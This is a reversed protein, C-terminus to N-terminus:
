NMWNKVFQYCVQILKDPNTGNYYLMQDRRDPYASEVMCVLRHAVFKTNVCFFDTKSGVANTNEKTLQDVNTWGMDALKDLLDNRGGIMLIRFNNLYDIMEAQSVSIESAFDENEVTEELFINRNKTKEEKLEQTMNEIIGSKVSLQYELEKIRKDRDELLKQYDSKEAEKSKLQKYDAAISTLRENESVLKKIQRETDSILRQSEAADVVTDVNFSRDLFGLLEFVSFYHIGTDDHGDRNYNATRQMGFAKRFVIENEYQQKPVGKIMKSGTAVSRMHGIVYYNGEYSCKSIHFRGLEFYKGIFDNGLCNKFCSLLNYSLCDNVEDYDMGHEFIHSGLIKTDGFVEYIAYMVILFAYISLGRCDSIYYKDDNVCYGMKKFVMGEKPYQQLNPFLSYLTNKHETDLVCSALAEHHAQKPSNPKLGDFLNLQNSGLREKDTMSIGLFFPLGTNYLGDVCDMLSSIFEKESLRSQLYLSQACECIWEYRYDVFRSTMNLPIYMPNKNDTLSDQSLENRVRKYDELDYYDWKILDLLDVPLEKDFSEKTISMATLESIGVCLFPIMDIKVDDEKIEECCFAPIYFGDKLVFTTIDAFPIRKGNIQLNDRVKYSLHPKKKWNELSQFGEKNKSNESDLACSALAEHHAQNPSNPKFLSASAELNSGLREKDTCRREKRSMPEVQLSTMTISIKQDKAKTKLDM